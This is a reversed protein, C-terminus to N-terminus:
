EEVSLVSDRVVEAEEREEFDASNETESLAEGESIDEVEPLPPIKLFEEVTMDLTDGNRIRQRARAMTIFFFAQRSTEMAQSMKESYESFFRMTGLSFYRNFWIMAENRVEYSQALLVTATKLLIHVTDEMYDPKNKLALARFEETAAKNATITESIADKLEFLVAESSNEDMNEMIKMFRNWKESAPMEIEKLKGIYNEIYEATNNEATKKSCSIFILVFICFAFLLKKM